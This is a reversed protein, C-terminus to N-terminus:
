RHSCGPWCCPRRKGEELSSIMWHIRKIRTDEKKASTIWCIFENRGLPTLSEWITIIEQNLIIQNKIDEPLNHVTGESIKM